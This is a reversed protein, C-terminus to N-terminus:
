PPKTSTTWFRAPWAPCPSTIPVVNPDFYGQKLLPEIAQRLYYQAQEINLFAPREHPRGFGSASVGLPWFLDIIRLALGNMTLIDVMGSGPLTSDRLLARYPEALTQQPVLVLISSAPVHSTLLECLREVAYTTKGTGAPGTLHTIPM